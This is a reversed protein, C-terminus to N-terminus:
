RSGLAAVMCLTYRWDPLVPVALVVLSGYACCATVVNRTDAVANMLRGFVLGQISISCVLFAGYVAILQWPAYHFARVLLLPLVSEMMINVFSTTASTVYLATVTRTVLHFPFLRRRALRPKSAESAFRPSEPLFLIVAVMNCLCLGASLIASLWFADGVGMSYGLFIGLSPGAMLGLASCAGLRGIERSRDQLSTTDACYAQLVGVTGAVLGALLRAVALQWISPAFACYVGAAGGLGTCCVLLPRRGWRDSLAGVTINGVLQGVAYAAALLGLLLGDQSASFGALTSFYYPLLPLFVTLGATDVFQTAYLTLRGATDLTTVAVFDEDEDEHDRNRLGSDEPPTDGVLAGDM